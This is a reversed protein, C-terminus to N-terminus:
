DSGIEIPGLSLELKRFIEARQEIPIVPDTSEPQRSWRRLASNSIRRKGFVGRENRPMEIEIVCDGEQYDIRDFSKWVVRSGDPFESLVDGPTESFGPHKRQALVFFLIMSFGTVLWVGWLLSGSVNLNGSRKLLLLGM